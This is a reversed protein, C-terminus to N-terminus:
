KGREKMWATLRRGLSSSAPEPKSLQEDADADAQPVEGSLVMPAAADITPMPSQGYQTTDWFPRNQARAVIPSNEATYLIPETSPVFPAAPSEAQPSQQWPNIAPEPAVLGLGPPATLARPSDAPSSIPEGTNLGAQQSLLQSRKEQLSNNEDRLKALQVNIERQKRDNDALQAEIVKMEDNPQDTEGM